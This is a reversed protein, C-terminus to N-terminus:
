VSLLGGARLEEILELPPRDYGQKLVNYQTADIIGLEYWREIEKPIYRLRLREFQPDTIMGEQHFYDIARWIDSVYGSKLSEYQERNILSRELWLGFEKPVYVRSGDREM